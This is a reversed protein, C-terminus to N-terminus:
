LQSDKYLVEKYQVINALIQLIKQVKRNNENTTNVATKQWVIFLFDVMHFFLSYLDFQRFFNFNIEHEIILLFRIHIEM